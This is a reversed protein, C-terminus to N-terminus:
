GLKISIAIFEGFVSVRGVAAREIGQMLGQHENLLNGVAPQVRCLILEVTSEFCLNIIQLSISRVIRNAIM